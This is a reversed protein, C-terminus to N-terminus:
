DTKDIITVEHGTQQLYYASSLGIIGGGIIVVRM